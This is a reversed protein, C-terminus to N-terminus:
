DSLFHVVLLRHVAGTRSPRLQFKKFPRNSDGENDMCHILAVGIHILTNNYSLLPVILITEAVSRTRNSDM